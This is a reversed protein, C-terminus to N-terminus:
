CGKLDSPLFYKDLIVFCCLLIFVYTRLVGLSDNKFRKNQLINPM